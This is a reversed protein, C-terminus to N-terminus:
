AAPISGWTGRCIRSRSLCTGIRTADASAKEEQAGGLNPRSNRARRPNATNSVFALTLIVVVVALGALGALLKTRDQARAPAMAPPVSAEEAVVEDIEPEPEETLVLKPQSETNM